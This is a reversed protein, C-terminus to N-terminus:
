NNVNRGFATLIAKAEDARDPGLLDYAATAGFLDPNGLNGAILKELDEPTTANAQKVLKDSVGAVFAVSGQRYIKAVFYVKNPTGLLSSADKPELTIFKTGGVDTFWMKFTSEGQAVIQQDANRTFNMYTVLCTHADYPVVAALTGKDPSDSHQLWLGVFGDDVKSKEPDGLPMELCGILGVILAFAIVWTVPKALNPRM